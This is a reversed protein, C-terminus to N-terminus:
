RDPGSVGSAEERELKWMISQPVNEMGRTRYPRTRYPYTVRIVRQEDSQRSRLVAVGFLIWGLNVLVFSLLIGFIVVGPPESELM